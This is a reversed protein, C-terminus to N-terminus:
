WFSISSAGAGRSGSETDALAEGLRRRTERVGDAVGVGARDLEQDLAVLQEEQLHVGADLDLVRDGLEHGADIEDGLLERM